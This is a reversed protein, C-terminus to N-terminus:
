RSRRTIMVTPQGYADTVVNYENRIGLRDAQEQQAKSAGQRLAVEAGCLTHRGQQIETTSVTQDCEDCYFPGDFKGM